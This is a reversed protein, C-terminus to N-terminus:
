DEMGLYYRDLYKIVESKDKLDLEAKRMKLIKAAEGDIEINHRVKATTEM